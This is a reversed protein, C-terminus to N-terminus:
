KKEITLQSCYSQICNMLVFHIVLSRVTNFVTDAMEACYPPVIANPHSFLPELWDSADASRAAECRPRHSSGPWRNSLGLLGTRPLFASTWFWAQSLQASNSYLYLVLADPHQIAM